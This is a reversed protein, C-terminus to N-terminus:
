ENSQPMEEEYLVLTGDADQPEAMIEADITTEKDKAFALTFGSRNVGVITVWVDGDAADHHHFGFVYNTGDDKGAGGIKVTRIGNSETVTATRCLKNLTAGNWTIIGTKLIAEEETIITKEVKGDDDKATYYTPTYEVSAGGKIRGLINAAAFLETRTPMTGNYAMCHLEGSGLTITETANRKSM